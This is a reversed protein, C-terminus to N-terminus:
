GFVAIMNFTEAGTGTIDWTKKTGSVDDNDDNFKLMVAGGPLLAFSFNAGQLQYGNSAGQEFVMAAEGLNQILVAQLKLGTCDINGETAPLATFDLTLAGATLAHVKASMKTIPVAPSATAPLNGSLSFTNHEITPNNSSPINELTETVNLKMSWSAAIAM